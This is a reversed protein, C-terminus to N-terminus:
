AVRGVDLARKVAQTGHRRAGAVHEVRHAGRQGRAGGHALNAVRETLHPAPVLRWGIDSGFQGTQGVHSNVSRAAIIVARCRPGEARIFRAIPTYDARLDCWRPGPPACTFFVYRSAASAPAIASAMAAHPS